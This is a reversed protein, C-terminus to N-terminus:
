YYPALPVGVSMNADAAARENLDRLLVHAVFGIPQREWVPSAPFGVEFRDFLAALENYPVSRPPRGNESIAIAAFGYGDAKIRMVAIRNGTVPDSLRSTQEDVIM